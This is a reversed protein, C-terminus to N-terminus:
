SVKYESKKMFSSLNMGNRFLAVCSRFIGDKSAQYAISGVIYEGSLSSNISDNDDLSPFILDFKDFVNINNSPNIYILLVNKFFDEIYFENQAVAEFYNKHVNLSNLIGVPQVNVIKGVDNKNKFSFQTLGHYDSTIKKNKFEEFDWYSFEKGYTRTKNVFGSFNRVSFNNYYIETSKEKTDTEGIMSISKYPDYIAKKSTKNELETKLSTIIFENNRKFCAMIADDPKFSRKLVEAIMQYNSQQLQRWTMSDSTKIKTKPSFGCESAISSLTQISTKNSFARTKLPFFLDNNKMIGTIRIMVVQLIDGDTNLIESDMVNFKMDIVSETKDSTALEVQLEDGDELPYRESLIGNDLINLEVVPILDFISERINISVINQPLVEINKIKIKCYFNNIFFSSDLNSIRENNITM